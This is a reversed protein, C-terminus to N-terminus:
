EICRTLDESIRTERAFIDEDSILDRDRRAILCLTEPDTNAGWKPFCFFHDWSAFEDLFEGIMVVVSRDRISEHLIECGTEALELDERDILCECLHSTHCIFVDSECLCELRIYVSIDTDRDRDPYRRSTDSRLHESIQMLRIPRRDDPIPFLDLLDVLTEGETLDGEDSTPICLSESGPDSGDIVVVREIRSMYRSEESLTPDDEPTFEMPDVGPDRVIRVFFAFTDDHTPGKVILDRIIRVKEPPLSEDVEFAGILCQHLLSLSRSHDSEKESMAIKGIRRFISIETFDHDIPFM